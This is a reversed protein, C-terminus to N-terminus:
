DRQNQARDASSLETQMGNLSRRSDSVAGLINQKWGPWKEVVSTANALHERFKAGGSDPATSNNAQENKMGKGM